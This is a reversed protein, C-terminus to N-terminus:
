NKLLIKKQYEFEETTLVGQDRLSALRALENAISFAPGAPVVAPKRNSRLVVGLIVIAIGFGIIGFYIGMQAPAAAICADSVGSRVGRATAYAIDYGAAELHYSAFAGSCKYGVPINFGMVIGAISVLPGLIFPWRLGAPKTVREGLHTWSPLAGGGTAESSRAVRSLM